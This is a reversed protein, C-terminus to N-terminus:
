RETGLLYDIGHTLIQVVRDSMLGEAKTKEINTALFYTRYNRFTRPHLVKNLIKIEDSTRQTETIEPIEVLAGKGEGYGCYKLKYALREGEFDGVAMNDYVENISNLAPYHENAPVFDTPNLGYNHFRFIPVRPHRRTIKSEWENLMKEVESKKIRRESSYAEKAIELLTRKEPNYLLLVNYGIDRLSNAVLLSLTIASKENRHQGSTIIIRKEM